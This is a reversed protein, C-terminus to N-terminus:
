IHILSLHLIAQAPAQRGMVQAPLIASVAVALLALPLVNAAADAMAPGLTARATTVFVLTYAFLLVASGGLLLTAQRFRVSRALDAHVSTMM